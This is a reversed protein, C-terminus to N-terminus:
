TLYKKDYDLHDIMDMKERDYKEIFEPFAKILKEQQELNAAKLAQGLFMDFHDGYKVAHDGIREIRRFDFSRIYGM